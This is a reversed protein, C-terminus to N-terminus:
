TKANGLEENTAQALLRQEAVTNLARHEAENASRAAAEMEATLQQQNKLAERVGELDTFLQDGQTKCTRILSPWAWFKLFWLGKKQAIANLAKHELETM